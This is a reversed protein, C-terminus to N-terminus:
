KLGDIGAGAAKGMLAGFGIAQGMPTEPPGTFDLLEMLGIAVKNATVPNALALSLVEPGVAAAALVTAPAAAAVALTKLNEEAIKEREEPTLKSYDIPTPANPSYVQEISSRKPSSKLPKVMVHHRGWVDTWEFKVVDGVLTSEKDAGWYGWGYGIQTSTDGSGNNANSDSTPDNSGGYSGPNGIGLGEFGGMDDGYEQNHHGSPDTYILPNNVCYAYRNLSQPDYVNPVVSDASIFRGVVPDYLRADYNYL